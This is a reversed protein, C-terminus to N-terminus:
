RLSSNLRRRLLSRTTKRLSSEWIEATQLIRKEAMAQNLRRLRWKFALGDRFNDPNLIPNYFYLGNEYTLVGKDKFKKIYNNLVAVNKMECKRIVELKFEHSCPSRFLM